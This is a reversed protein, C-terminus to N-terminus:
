RRRALYGVAGSAGITTALSVPDFLWRISMDIWVAAQPPYEAISWAQPWVGNEWFFVNYLSLATLHFIAPGLAAAILM